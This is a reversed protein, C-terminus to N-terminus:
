LSHVESSESQQNKEVTRGLRYGSWFAILICVFIFAYFIVKGKPTGNDSEM